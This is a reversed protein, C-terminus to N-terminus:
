YTENKLVKDGLAGFGRHVRDVGSNRMLGWLSGVFLVYVFLRVSIDWICRRIILGLLTRIDKCFAQTNKGARISVRAASTVRLPGM